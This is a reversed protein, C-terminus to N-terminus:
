QLLSLFHFTKRNTTIFIDVLCRLNTNTNPKKRLAFFFLQRKADCMWDALKTKTSVSKSHFTCFNELSNGMIKKRKERRQVLSREVNTVQRQKFSSSFSSVRFTEARLMVM